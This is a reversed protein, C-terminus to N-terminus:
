KSNLFVCNDIGTMLGMEIVKCKWHGHGEDNSHWYKPSGNFNFVSLYAFVFGIGFAVFVLILASEKM